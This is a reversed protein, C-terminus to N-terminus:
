GAPVAARRLRDNIARGLGRMPVPMAAIARAGSADLRHLYDFLHSAAEVLDPSPARLLTPPENDHSLAPGALTATAADFATDVIVAGGTVVAGGPLAIAAVAVGSENMEAATVTIEATLPYQRGPNKALPKNAM